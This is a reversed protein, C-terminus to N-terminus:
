HDKFNARFFRSVWSSSDSRKREILADITRQSSARSLLRQDEDTMGHTVHKSWCSGCSMADLLGMFEADCFVCHHKFEGNM